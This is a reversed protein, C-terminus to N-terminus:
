CKWLSLSLSHTHTHTFRSVLEIAGVLGCCFEKSPLAQEGSSQDLTAHSEHLKEISWLVVGLIMVNAQPFGQGFAALRHVLRDGRQQGIEFRSTQEFVRQDQPAALETAGGGGFPGVTALMMQEAEGHPHSASANASAHDVSRGVFVAPVRDLVLDVDVVQVGRDQMLYAKIVFAQGVAVAAPIIAQGIHM